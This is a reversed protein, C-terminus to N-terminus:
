RLFQQLQTCPDGAIIKGGQSFHQAGHKWKARFYSPFYSVADRFLAPNPQSPRRLDREFFMCGVIEIM